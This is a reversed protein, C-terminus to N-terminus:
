AARGSPRFRSWRSAAVRRQPQQGSFGDQSLKVAQRLVGTSRQVGCFRCVSRRRRANKPANKVRRNARAARRRMHCVFVPWAKAHSLLESWKGAPLERNSAGCADRVEGAPRFSIGRGSLWLRDHVAACDLTQGKVTNAASCSLSSPTPCLFATRRHRM